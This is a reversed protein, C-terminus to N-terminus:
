GNYEELYVEKDRKIKLTVPVVTTNSLSQVNFQIDAVETHPQLVNITRLLPELGMIIAHKLQEINISISIEKPGSKSPM